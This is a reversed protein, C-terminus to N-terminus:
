GPFRLCSRCRGIGFSILTMSMGAEAMMCSAVTAIESFFCRPFILPLSPSSSVCQKFEDIYQREGNSSPAEARQRRVHACAIGLLM